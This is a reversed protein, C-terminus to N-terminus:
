QVTHFTDTNQTKRTRIKRYESQICTNTLFPNINGGKAEKVVKLINVPFWGM